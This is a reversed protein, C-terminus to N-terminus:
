APIGERVHAAVGIKFWGIECPALHLNGVAVLAGRADVVLCEDGPRLDPDCARAFRAFVSKGERNFPVADDDVVIRLRPAPLAAHLRRAGAEKLTFFGDPARLSLVHQDDVHVTRWKGTNPSRVFSLAGRAIVAGAGPGFQWDALRELREREGDKPEDPIGDLTAMGEWARVEVGHREAFARLDAAFAAQESADTEAPEVSQAFPYAGDLALPVAGFRSRVAPLVARRDFDPLLNRYSESWPRPAPPLVVLARGGPDVREALRRRARVAEPRRASEPSLFLFATPKSLPELTELWEAHRLAARLGDLLAPHTRCREEVLEGLRGEHLAQRVRRLEAFSVHLNHLALAREREGDPLRRLGSAGHASCVPCPCPSEELDALARTGDAFIMRGDAAYKAYASSDFLDCGLWAALPFVAPHGAGFLHVPRSPDLGQKAAVVVEALEGYRQREMLPVVGGIPHVDAAVDRYAEACRRRLAPYVSGQVTAALAMEGKAEAAARVRRVTEEVDAAAEEYTRDPTSFVDLATGVDVGIDRQFAIIDLPDIEIREGYVYMQFTGSDTMVPGDWAILRHIGEKLARERLETRKRIIYSNTIVMECGMAKLEATAVLPLNPNLVPLLTPTRVTGHATQLKGLRGAGDRRGLEFRLM